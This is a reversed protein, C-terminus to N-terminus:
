KKDIFKDGFDSSSDKPESDFTLMRALPGAYRSAGLGVVVGVWLYIEIDAVVENQSGGLQGVAAHIKFM